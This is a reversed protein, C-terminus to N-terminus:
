PQKRRKFFAPGLLALGALAIFTASPFTHATTRFLLVGPV